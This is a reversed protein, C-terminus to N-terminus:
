PCPWDAPADGPPLCITGQNVTSVCDAFTDQMWFLSRDGACVVTAGQPPRSLLLNTDREELGTCGFVEPRWSGSREGVTLVIPTSLPEVTAAAMGLLRVQSFGAPIPISGPGMAGDLYTIYLPQATYSSAVVHDAGHGPVGVDLTGNGNLDEYALLVGIAIQGSGGGTGGYTDSLDVLSSAPPTGSLALSFPAPLSAQLAVQEVTRNLIVSNSEILIHTEQPTGCAYAFTPVPQVVGADFPQAGPRASMIRLLMLTSADIWNIALHVNTLPGADVPGTLQGTVTAPGTAPAPGTATAPRPGPGPCGLLALTSLLLPLHLRLSLLPTNRM